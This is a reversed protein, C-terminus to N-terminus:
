ARVEQRLTILHQGASVLAGQACNLTEFTADNRVGAGGSAFHGPAARGVGVRGPRLETDRFDDNRM